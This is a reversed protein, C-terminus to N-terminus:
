KIVWPNVVHQPVEGKLAELIRAAAACGMANRAELTNTGVHPALVVNDLETFMKPIEPENYFVDLGAAFMDGAKLKEYLADYDVVAGRATNVLVSRKKMLDLKEKSIMGRTEDTLPCHISVADSEKLLTDLDAYEAGYEEKARSRNHYLVRMGMLKGFQAVVGGIHGMGVIGLTNGLLGMGMYKGMGFLENSPKQRALLNLEGIRRMSALLLGIALEATPYATEDPTNTVYVGKESAAKVDVRDYGAGYNAIIKLKKANAIVEADVAGCGLIADADTTMELLEPKSFIKLPEPAIVKHGKLLERYEDPVGHTVVIKAM